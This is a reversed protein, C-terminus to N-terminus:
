GAWSMVTGLSLRRGFVGLFCSCPDRRGSGAARSPGTEAAVRLTLTVYNTARREMRTFLSPSETQKHRGDRSSALLTPGTANAFRESYRENLTQGPFVGVQLPSANAATGRSGKGHLAIRTYTRVSRCLVSSSKGMDAPAAPLRPPQGRSSRQPCQNLAFTHNLEGVVFFTERVPNRLTMGAGSTASNPLGKQHKSRISTNNKTKLTKNAEGTM